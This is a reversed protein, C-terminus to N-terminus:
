GGAASEFKADSTSRLPACLDHSLTAAFSELERSAAEVQRNLDDLDLGPKEKPAHPASNKRRTVTLDGGVAIWTGVLAM